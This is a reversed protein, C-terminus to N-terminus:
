IYLTFTIHCYLKETRTILVIIVTYIVMYKNIDTTVRTACQDTDWHGAADSPVVTWMAISACVM